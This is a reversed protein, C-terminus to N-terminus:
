PNSGDARRGLETLAALVAAVPAVAASGREAARIRKLGRIPKLQQHLHFAAVHLADAWPEGLIDGAVGGALDPAPERVEPVADSMPPNAAAAKPGPRQRTRGDKGTTTKTPAITGSAILKKRTRGVRKHETGADEAISRDSKSPDSTLLDIVRAQVPDHPLTAAGGPQGGVTISVPPAIDSM